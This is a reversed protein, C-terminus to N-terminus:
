ETKKVASIAISRDQSRRREPKFMAAKKEVLYWSLAACPITFVFALVIQGIVPMSSFKSQLLQQIPFAYLYLGYSIDGYKGASSLIPTAKQGATIYLYPFVFASVVSVIYFEHPTTCLRASIFYVLLAAAAYKASFQIRRKLVSFMGGALFYAGMELAARVDTAYIVVMPGKYGSQLYAAVCAFAASLAGFAIAKRGMAVVAVIPTVIYMLFEAPLSWLSGNVANPIPSHEFVGPLYYVIFLRMNRLYGYTAPNAFYDSRSLTTVAPGFMFVTVLVIMILAPFIRLARKAFFRAANPDSLWSSAVLYGSISFFIAVGYGHVPISLITPATAGNLAFAHGVIVLSAALLRLFDFNNSPHKM